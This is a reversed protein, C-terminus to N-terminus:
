AGGERPGKHGLDTKWPPVIGAQAAADSVYMVYDGIRGPVPRVWVLVGFPMSSM